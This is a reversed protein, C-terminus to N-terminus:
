FPSLQILDFYMLRTRLRDESERVRGISRSETDEDDYLFRFGNRQYYDLVKPHNVADVVLFRCGTKNLPDIFWAKIFDLLSDGLGVGEFGDFVALRGILVAPYQNHRKKNPIHRNIANRRRNEVNALYISANAVTFACAIKRPSTDTCFCYSKGLLQNRYGIYDKHFFESIDRNKSCFYDAVDEKQLLTMECFQLDSLDTM